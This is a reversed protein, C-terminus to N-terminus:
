IREISTTVCPKVVAKETGLLAEAEKAVRALIRAHPNRWRVISRRGATGARLSRRVCYVDLSSKLGTM